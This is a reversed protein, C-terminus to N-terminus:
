SLMPKMDSRRAMARQYAPRPRNRQLYTLIARYPALDYAYFLRMTTLTFVLM